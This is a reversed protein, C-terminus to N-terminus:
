APRNPSHHHVGGNAWGAVKTAVGVVKPARGKVKAQEFTELVKAVDAPRFWQEGERLLVYELGEPSLSAKIRDVIM